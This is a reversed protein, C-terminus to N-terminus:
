APKGAKAAADALAKDEQARREPDIEVLGLDQMERLNKPDVAFAVFQLPDNEFRLRVAPPLKMFEVEAARVREVASRYDGIESVDAFVGEAYGQPLLGTKTFQSVIRNIDCEAAESQRAGPETCVTGAAFERWPPAVSVAMKAM